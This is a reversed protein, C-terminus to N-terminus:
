WLREVFSGSDDLRCDEISDTARYPVASGPSGRLYMRGIAWTDDPARLDETPAEM